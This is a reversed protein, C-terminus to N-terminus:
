LLLLLECLCLVPNTPPNACFPTPAPVGVTRSSVQPSQASPGGPPGSCGRRPSYPREALPGSTQCPRAGQRLRWPSRTPELPLFPSSSMPPAPDPDPPAGPPVYAAPPAALPLAQPMPGPAEGGARPGAPSFSPRILHGFVDENEMRKCAREAADLSGFRIVATGKSVSLVKGGCNDSLRRLRLKVAGRLSKDCAVPLNHVYLNSFSPQPLPPPLCLTGPQPQTRPIKKYTLLNTYYCHTCM